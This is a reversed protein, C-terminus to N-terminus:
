PMCFQGEPCPPDCVPITMCTGDICWEGSACAPDCEAPLAMCIGSCPDCYEGKGCHPDCTEIVQCTTGCCIEPATCEPECMVPLDECHGAADCLCTNPNCEYGAQCNDPCKGRCGGDLDIPAYDVCGQFILFGLCAFLMGGMVAKL